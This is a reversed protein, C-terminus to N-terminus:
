DFTLFCDHKNYYNFNNIYDAITPVAPDLQHRTNDIIDAVRDGSFYPELDMEDVFDPYIEEDDDNVDVHEDIYFGTDADIDETDYHVYITYRDLDDKSFRLLQAIKIPMKSYDLYDEISDTDTEHTLTELPIEKTQKQTFTDNYFDKSLMLKAGSDILTKLIDTFAKKAAFDAKDWNFSIVPSESILKEKIDALSEGSFKRLIPIFKTCDERAGLITVYVLQTYQAMNIVVKVKNKINRRVTEAV